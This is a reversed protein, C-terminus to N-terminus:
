KPIHQKVYVDIFKEFHHRIRKSELEMDDLMLKIAIIEQWASTAGAVKRLHNIDIKMSRVFEKDLKLKEDVPLKNFEVIQEDIESLESAYSAVSDDGVAFFDHINELGTVNKVGALSSNQDDKEFAIENYNSLQSALNQNKIDGFTSQYAIPKQGGYCGGNNEWDKIKEELIQEQKLFSELDGGFNVVDNSKDVVPDFLDSMLKNIDDMNFVDKDMNKSM